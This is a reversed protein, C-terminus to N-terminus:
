LLPAMREATAALAGHDGTHANYALHALGIHLMCCRIRADLEPVALGIAAYHQRARERVDVAALPPHWPSWFELWAVDYLFDGYFSCGWDFIAAIREESVLVNRNILDSHVICRSTPLTAALQALLAHGARFLEDGLPSEALKRRWGHTRLAPTDADISLLFAAWSADRAHGRADWNGYGPVDGLDVVRMADLARLLSPLIEMWGDEDLSELPLGYARSSIAFYAGLAEGIELVEPVPLAESRFSAARRDREFDELFRGFRVVLDRGCDEFGFCRSWAGEGVWEVHLAERGFHARLFRAADSATPASNLAQSM